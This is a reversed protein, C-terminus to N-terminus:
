SRTPTRTATPSSPSWALATASGSSSSWSPTSSARGPRRLNEGGPETPEPLHRGHQGLSV